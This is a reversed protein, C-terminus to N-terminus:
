IFATVTFECSYHFMTFTQISFTNFFVLWKNEKMETFGSHQILVYEISIINFKVASSSLMLMINRNLRGFAMSTRKCKM